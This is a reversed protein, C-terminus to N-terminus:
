HRIPHLAKHMPLNPVLNCGLFDESNEKNVSHAFVLDCVFYQLKWTCLEIVTEM